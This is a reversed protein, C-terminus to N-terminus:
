PDLSEQLLCLCRESTKEPRQALRCQPLWPARRAPHSRNSASPSFPTRCAPTRSSSQSPDLGPELRANAELEALNNGFSILDADHCFTERLCEFSPWEIVEIVDVKLNLVASDDVRSLVVVGGVYKARQTCCALNRPRPIYDAVPCALWNAGEALGGSGAPADRLRQRHSRKRSLAIKTKAPGLLHWPM